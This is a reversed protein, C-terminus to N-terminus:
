TSTECRRLMLTKCGEVVAKTFVSSSRVCGMISLKVPKQPLKNDKTSLITIVLDDVYEIDYEFTVAPANTNNSSEVFEDNANM